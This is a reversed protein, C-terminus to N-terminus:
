RIIWVPRQTYSRNTQDQIRQMQIKKMMRRLCVLQQIWLVNRPYRNHKTCQRRKRNQQRDGQQTIKTQMFQRPDQVVKREQHNDRHSGETAFIDFVFQMGQVIKNVDQKM